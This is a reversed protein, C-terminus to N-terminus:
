HNFKTLRKSLEQGHFLLFKMMIIKIIINGFLIKKLPVWFIGIFGIILALLIGLITILLGGGMGPGLYAFCINPLIILIVAYNIINM